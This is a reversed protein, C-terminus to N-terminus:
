GIVFNPTVCLDTSLGIKKVSHVLGNDGIIRLCENTLWLSYATSMWTYRVAKLILLNVYMSQWERAILKDVQSNSGSDIM